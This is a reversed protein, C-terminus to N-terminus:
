EPGTKVSPVPLVPARGAPLATDTPDALDRDFARAVANGAVDELGPDVVLALGGPAWPAWPAAPTFRWRTGDAAVDVAGAVVGSGEHVVRLSRAVLRRDLPRGFAVVLSDRRGPVVAGVTWAGPDVRGRLDPGVAYVAEAGEVLPHGAADPYGAEVVLRVSGGERLPYGAERHPALGRKIRAPDLLVTLECRAEDWLEPDLAFLADRLVLGSTADELRLHRTAAGEAMPASFRVHFRLLNRPVVSLAPEIGVVRATPRGPAPAATLTAVPRDEGDLVTYSRGPLFAFRPVFRAGDGDDAWRGAMGARGAPPMGGRLVDSPVVRASASWGPPVGRAVLAVGAPGDREDWAVEVM